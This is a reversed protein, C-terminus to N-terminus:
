AGLPRKRTLVTLLGLALLWLGGGQSCGCGTGTIGGGPGADAEGSGGGTGSSGDDITLTFTTVGSSAAGTPAGMTVIVTEGPDPESDSLVSILYTASTSGAPISLQGGAIPTSFDTGRTATGTITFPVVVAVSAASTLVAKLQVTPAASETVTEAAKDWSVFVASENDLIEFMGSGSNYGPASASITVFRSANPVGPPDDVLTVDFSATTAGMAITVPNVAFGLQAPLDATLTVVLLAAVVAGIRANRGM